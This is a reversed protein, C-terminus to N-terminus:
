PDGAQYELVEEMVGEFQEAQAELISRDRRDREAKRARSLFDRLAHEILQSRSLGAAGGYDDADALLDSSLSVSTKTKM